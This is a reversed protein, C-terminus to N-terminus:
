SLLLSGSPTLTTKLGKKEECSTYHQAHELTTSSPLSYQKNKKPM